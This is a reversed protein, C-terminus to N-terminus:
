DARVPGEKKQLGDGQGGGLMIGQFLHSMMVVRQLYVAAVSLPEEPLLHSKPRPLGQDARGPEEEEDCPM